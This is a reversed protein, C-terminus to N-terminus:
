SKAQDKGDQSTEKENENKWIERNKSVLGQEQMWALRLYTTKTKLWLSRAYQSMIWLIGLIVSFFLWLFLAARPHDVM